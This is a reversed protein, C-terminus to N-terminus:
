SSVKAASVAAEGLHSRFDDSINPQLWPAEMVLFPVGLKDIVFRFLYYLHAYLQLRKLLKRTDEKCAVIGRMYTCFMEM